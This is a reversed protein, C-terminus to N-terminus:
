AFLAAFAREFQPAAAKALLKLAHMDSLLAIARADGKAITRVRGRYDTEDAMSAGISLRKM